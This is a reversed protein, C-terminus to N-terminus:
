TARVELVAVGGGATVDVTHLLTWHDDLTCPAHATPDTTMCVCLGGPALVRKAIAATAPWDAVATPGVLIADVDLSNLSEPWPAQASWPSQLNPVAARAQWAQASRIRAADPVVPQWWWGQFRRALIAATAGSGAGLHLLRGSPPLFRQLVEAVAIRLAPDLAPPLVEGATPIDDVNWLEM